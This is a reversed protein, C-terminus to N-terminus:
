GEGSGPATERVFRAAADLLAGREDSTPLRRAFKVLDCRSLADALSVKPEAGIAPAAVCQETTWERAPLSFRERLYDRVVAAAAIHFAEIEERTEPSRGRLNEIRAFARDHPGVPPPEARPLGTEEGLDPEVRRRRRVVILGIVGSALLALAIWVVPSTAPPFPGRPLEAPGPDGPGLSPRVRVVVSAATAVRVAGGAKPRARFSPAAVTVEGPEFAHARYRRTEEVRRDDERRAVELLEVALPALEDDLWRAPELDRDWVRVVTLPFGIGLEVEEVEATVRIQLDVAPIPAGDGCGGALLALLAVPVFRRM